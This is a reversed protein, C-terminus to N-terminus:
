QNGYHKILSKFLDQVFWLEHNSMSRIMETLSNELERRNKSINRKEEVEVFFDRLPVDLEISIAFLTEISSYAFGREINSITTEAKDVLEALKAQSLKKRERSIKVQMGIYSKLDM